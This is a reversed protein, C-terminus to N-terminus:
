RRSPSKLSGLGGQFKRSGEWFEWTRGMIGEPDKGLFGRSGEGFNGPGEKKDDGSNGPYNKPRDWVGKEWTGVGFGDPIKPIKGAGNELPIGPFRM